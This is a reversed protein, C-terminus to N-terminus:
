FNFIVSLEHSVVKANTMIWVREKKEPYKNEICLRQYANFLSVLFLLDMCFEKAGRYIRNGKEDIQRNGYTRPRYLDWLTELDSPKLMQGNYDTGTIKLVRNM